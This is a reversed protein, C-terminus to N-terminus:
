TEKKTDYDHIEKSNLYKIHELKLPVMGAQIAYEKCYSHSKLYARMSSCQSKREMLEAYMKENKQKLYAYKILFHSKGLYLCILLLQVVVGMAM